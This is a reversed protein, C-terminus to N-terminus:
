LVSRLAVMKMWIPLLRHHAAVNRDAAGEALVEEIHHLIAVLDNYYDPLATETM